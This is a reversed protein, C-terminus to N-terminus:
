ESEDLIGNLKQNKPNDDWLPFLKLNEELKKIKESQENTATIIYSMPQLEGQKYTNILYNMEELPIYYYPSGTTKYIGVIQFIIDVRKMEYVGNKMSIPMRVPLTLLVEETFEDDLDDIGMKDLLEVEPIYLPIYNGFEGNFTKLCKSNLKDINKFPAIAFYQYPIVFNPDTESRGLGTDQNRIEHGNRKLSWEIPIDFIDNQLDIESFYYTLPFMYADDIQIKSNERLKNITDDSIWQNKSLQYARQISDDNNSKFLVYETVQRDRLCGTLIFLFVILSLIKKM